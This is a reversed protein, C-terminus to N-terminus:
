RHTHLTFGKTIERKIPIVDISVLRTLMLSISLLLTGKCLLTKKLCIFSDTRFLFGIFAILATFGKCIETTKSFMLFIMSSFFGILTTLATFGKYTATRKLYVFSRM